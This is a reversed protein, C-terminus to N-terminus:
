ARRQRLQHITRPPQASVAAAILGFMIGVSIADIASTTTHSRAGTAVGSSSGSYGFISGDAGTGTEVDWRLTLAPDTGAISGATTVDDKYFGVAVVYAATETPNFDAYSVTDATANLSQSPTTADIPSGSALCGSFAAIVGCNLLNDDVPKTFTFSGGSGTARRWFLSVRYTSGHNVELISTWTGDPPSVVQNNRGSICAILIDGSSCVPATIALNTTTADAAIAGANVFGVAM